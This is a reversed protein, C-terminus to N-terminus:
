GEALLNEVCMASWAHCLSSRPAFEEWLTSSGSDIMAGFIRRCLDRAEEGMGHTRLARCFFFLSMPTNCLVARDAILDFDTTPSCILPTTRKMWPVHYHQRVCRALLTRAEEATLMGGTIAYGATIQNWRPARWHRFATTRGEVLMPGPEGADAALYIEWDVRNFNLEIELEGGNFGAPLACTWPEFPHPHQWIAKPKEDLLLKGEYWIQVRGAAAVTLQRAPGRWPVRLRVPPPEEVAFRGRDAEIHYNWWPHTDHEISRDCDLIRGDRLFIKRWATRLTEGRNRFEVARNDGLREALTALQRWADAWLANLGASRPHKAVEFSNCLFIWGPVDRLLGDSDAYKEYAAVGALAAPFALRATEIDGSADLYNRVGLTFSLSFDPIMLSQPPSPYYANLVGDPGVGRLFQRLWRRIPERTGFLLPFAEAFTAPDMAQCRERRPGDNILDDCCITVTRAAAALIAQDREPLSAAKARWVEILPRHHERIKLSHVVVGAPLAAYHMARKEFSYWQRRGTPLELRDRFDGGAYQYDPQGNELLTDGQLLDCTTEVPSELDLEIFGFVEQGFDWIQWAGSRRLLRATMTQSIFSPLDSPILKERGPLPHTAVVAPTQWSPDVEATLWAQPDRTLDAHEGGALLFFLPPPDPLLSTCIAARWRTRDGLAFNDVMGTVLLGALCSAHSATNRGIHMARIRLRNRGPHLFPRLDIVDYYQWPAVERPPGHAVWVGNIWLTCWSGCSLAIWAHQPSATLDLDCAFDVYQHPLPTAGEAWWWSAGSWNVIPTTMIINGFEGDAYMILGPTVKVIGDLCACIRRNLLLPM